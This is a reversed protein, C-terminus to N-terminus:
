GAPCLPVGDIRDDAAPTGSLAAVVRVARDWFWAYHYPDKNIQTRHAVLTPEVSARDPVRAAMARYFLSAATYPDLRAERSGWSDQQQFLGISTTPSGDPNTVGSTEWDGYDINRLSSEGMATMVAITQDREDFGLDRGAALITCANALQDLGYGAVGPAAPWVIAPQAAPPPAPADDDAAFAEGFAGALVGGGLLVAAVLVVPIAIATFVAAGTRRGRRARRRQSAKRRRAPAKSGKSAGPRRARRRRSTASRRSPM